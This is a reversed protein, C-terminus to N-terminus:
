RAASLDADTDRVRFRFVDCKADFVTGSLENQLDRLPAIEGTFVAAIGLQIRMVSSRRWTIHFPISRLSSDVHKGCSALAGQPRGNRKVAALREQIEFQDPVANVIDFIPIRVSNKMVVDGCIQGQQVVTHKRIKRCVLDIQVDTKVSRLAYMVTGPYVRVPSSAKLLDVGGEQMDLLAIRGIETLQRKCGHRHICRRLSFAFPKEAAIWEKRMTGDM